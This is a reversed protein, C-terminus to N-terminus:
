IASWGLCSLQEFSLFSNELLVVASNKRLVVLRSCRLFEQIFFFIYM